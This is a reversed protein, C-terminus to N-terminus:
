KWNLLLVSIILLILIPISLKSILKAFSKGNDSRDFSGIWDGKEVSWESGNKDFYKMSLM